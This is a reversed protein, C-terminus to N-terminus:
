TSHALHVGLSDREVVYGELSKAYKEGRSGRNLIPSPSTPSISDVILVEM